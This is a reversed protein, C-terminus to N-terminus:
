YVEYNNEKLIKVIDEKKCLNKFKIKNKRREAVRSGQSSFNYNIDLGFMPNNNAYPLAVLQSYEKLGITYGTDKISKEKIRKDVLEFFPLGEQGNFTMKVAVTSKKKLNFSPITKKAKIKTFKRTFKRELFLIIQNLVEQNNKFIHLVVSKLRIM